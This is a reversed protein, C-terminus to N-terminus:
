GGEGLIGQCKRRHWYVGVTFLRFRRRPGWGRRGQDRLCCLFRLGGLQGYTKPLMPTGYIALNHMSPNHFKHALRPRKRWSLCISMAVLRPRIACSLSSLRRYPDLSDNRQHYLNSAGDWWTHWKGRQRGLCFSGLTFSLSDKMPSQSHSWWSGRVAASLLQKSPYQSRNSSNSSRWNQSKNKFAISLFSATCRLIYYWSIFDEIKRAMWSECCIVERLISM